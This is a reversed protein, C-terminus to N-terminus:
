APHLLVLSCKYLFFYRLRRGWFSWCSVHVLSFSFQLLLTAVSPFLGSPIFLFRLTLCFGECPPRHTFFRRPFLCVLSCLSYLRSHLLSVQVMSYLCLRAWYIYLLLVVCAPALSLTSVRLAAPGGATHAGGGPLAHGSPLPPPRMITIINDRRVNPTRKPNPHESSCVIPCSLFVHVFDALM